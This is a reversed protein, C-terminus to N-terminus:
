HAAVAVPNENDEDVLIRKKTTREPVIEEEEEVDEDNMKPAYYGKLEMGSALTVYTLLPIGKVFRFNIDVGFSLLTMIREMNKENITQNFKGSVKEPFATPLIGEFAAVKNQEDLNSEILIGTPAPTFKMSAKHIDYVHEKWKKLIACPVQYAYQADVAPIDVLDASIDILRINYTCLFKDKNNQITIEVYDKEGDYKLLLVTDKKKCSNKIVKLIIKLHLGLVYNKDCEFTNFYDVPMKFEVISTHTSDMCQLYWGNESCNINVDTNFKECFTLIKYFEDCDKITVNM